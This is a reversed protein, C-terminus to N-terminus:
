GHEISDQYQILELIEPSPWAAYIGRLAQAAGSGAGMAPPLSEPGPGPGMPLGATVPENPRRTPANLPIVEIPPAQPLPVAQQAAIQEAGQGYQQSPGVRIPQSRPKENLDTRNPYTKGPAGQRTGGPKRPRPM